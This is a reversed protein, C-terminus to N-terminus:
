TGMKPAMKLFTGAKLMIRAPATIEPVAHWVGFGLNWVGFFLVWVGCGFVGVGLGWVWVGLGGVGLGWGGVEFRIPLDALKNHSLHLSTISSCFGIDSPLCPICNHEAHLQLNVRSIFLFDTSPIQRSFYPPPPDSRRSRADLLFSPTHDRPLQPQPQAAHRTVHSTHRTVPSSHRQVPSPYRTVQSRHGIVTDRHYRM